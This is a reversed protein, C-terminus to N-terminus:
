SERVKKSFAGVDPFAGEIVVVEVGASRAMREIRALMESRLAEMRPGPQDTDAGGEEDDEASAELMLGFMAVAGCWFSKAAFDCQMKGAGMPKIVNDLFEQCAEEIKM